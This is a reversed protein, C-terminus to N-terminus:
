EAKARAPADYPLGNKDTERLLESASWSWGFSQVERPSGDDNAAPADAPAGDAAAVEIPKLLEDKLLEDILALLRGKVAERQRHLTDRKKPVLLLTMVNRLERSLNVYREGSRVLGSWSVFPAFFFYAVAARQSYRFLVAYTYSVHLIPTLILAILVKYTAVVDRATIKVKSSKLQKRRERQSYWRGVQYSLVFPMGLLIAPIALLGNLLVNILTGLARFAVRKRLPAQASVQFDKLGFLRLQSHYEDVARKVEETEVSGVRRGYGESFAKTLAVEETLTPRRGCSAMMQQRHLRRVMWFLQLSEYDPASITVTELGQLITDLFTSCAAHMAAGGKEYETVLAPPVSIPDGYDVL